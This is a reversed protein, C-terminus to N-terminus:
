QAVENKQRKKRSFLTWLLMLLFMRFSEVFLANLIAEYLQQWTM